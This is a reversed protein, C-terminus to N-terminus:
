RRYENRELYVIGIVGLLVTSLFLANALLPPLGLGIFALCGLLLAAIHMSLVARNSSMGLAVLRHYTHDQAGRYVPRKRRLRSIVVLTIDFIPVGMLLIPVYWSSLQEFGPPNYAIALSALLFGLFQAGSDGLFFVAPSANYFFCGISTGLIAASLLSLEVQGSDYTVLMFFAASLAALGLALGDMSDVFNYANTIGVVWLLTVLLNLWNQQFMLVQVGLYMLLLTALIQGGMKVLPPLERIDDWVGFVFVLSSSLLLAKTSPITLFDQWLAIAIVSLAITIGGAVPIANHHQKHPASNPLDVFGVRRTLAFVVPAIALTAITSVFIVRFSLLSLMEFM